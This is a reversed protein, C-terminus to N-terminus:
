MSEAQKTHHCGMMLWVPSNTPAFELFTFFVREFEQKSLQNFRTFLPIGQRILRIGIGPTWKELTHAVKGSPSSMVHRIFLDYMYREEATLPRGVCQIPRFTCRLM